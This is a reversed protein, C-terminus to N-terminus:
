DTGDAAVAILRARTALPPGLTLNHREDTEGGWTPRELALRRTEPFYFTVRDGPRGCGPGTGAGSSGAALVAIVYVTKGVEDPPVNDGATAVLTTASGCSNGNVFALIPQESPVINVGGSSVQGYAIFPLGPVGPPDVAGAQPAALLGLISAGLTGVILARRRARLRM